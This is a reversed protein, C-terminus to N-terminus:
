ESRRETSFSCGSNSWLLLNTASSWILSAKIITWLNNQGLHRTIFDTGIFVHLIGAIFMGLLLYPAMSTWLEVTANVINLIFNIM